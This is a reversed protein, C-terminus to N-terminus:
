TGINGVRHEVANGGVLWRLELGCPFCVCFSLGPDTPSAVSSRRCYPYAQFWNTGPRLPLYDRRFHSAVLDARLMAM